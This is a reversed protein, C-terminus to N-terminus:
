RINPMVQGGVWCRSDDHAGPCECPHQGRQGAFVGLLVGAVSTGPISLGGASPLTGAMHCSRAPRPSWSDVDLLRHGGPPPRVPGPSGRPQFRAPPGAVGTMRSTQALQAATQM